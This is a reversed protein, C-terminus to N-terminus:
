IAVSKKPVINGQKKAHKESQQSEQHVYLFAFIFWSRETTSM